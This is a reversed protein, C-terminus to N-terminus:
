KLTFISLIILITSLDQKPESYHLQQHQPLGDKFGDGNSTAESKETLRGMSHHHGSTHFM